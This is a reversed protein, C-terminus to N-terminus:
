VTAWLQAPREGRSVQGALDAQVLALDDPHTVGVCRSGAALVRFPAPPPAGEPLDGTLVRGVVEPLLVEAEESAHVAEAMAAELVTRMAPRFGWLNMSVVAEPDLQRPQRGDGSEFRGDGTPVVKRREDIDRLLGDGDVTCIGRTVPADGIVADRLRFGVLANAPDDGKLHAALLGLAEEGYLDDANAVGFGAAPPLEDGAALVAHVTGLPAEQLAFRVDVSSPWTREVHYRVAPGTSPGIVVVVTAFGAAVADSALLDLVAEGAPGVPALPKCGGYRTARGAALVVLVPSAAGGSAASSATDTM